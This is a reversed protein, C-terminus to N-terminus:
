AFLSRNHYKFIYFRERTTEDLVTDYRMDFHKLYEHTETLSKRGFNEYRWDIDAICLFDFLTKSGTLLMMVQVRPSLDRLRPLKKGLIPYLIKEKESFILFTM